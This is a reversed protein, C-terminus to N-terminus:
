KMWPPKVPPPIGHVAGQACQRWYEAEVRKRMQREELSDLEERIIRRITAEDVEKSSDVGITRGM